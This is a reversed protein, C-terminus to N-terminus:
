KVSLHVPAPAQTFGLEKLSKGLMTKMALKALPVGIAKSVFPVTRSGRPNVELVYIRDDKVAFQANMLGVVGLELALATMQRRIEEVISDTLSYPPLSCASDGSHVGAEEIHEMIGAVVVNTGDSIADADVEIADSLYKDILVPHKPSAKVASAMYSLLGTEDYVIQMSRGGLVYSPRVMVPYSIESAVRVAEEVSRAIGSEAQRLGLKNLLDRFRERDEARDIADPSTGLIRV